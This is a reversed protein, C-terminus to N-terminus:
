KEKRQSSSVEEQIYCYLSIVTCRRRVGRRWDKLDVRGEVVELDVAGRLFKVLVGERCFFAGFLLVSVLTVSM